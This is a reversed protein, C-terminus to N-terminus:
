CSLHRRELLPIVADSCSRRSLEKGGREFSREPELHSEVSLIVEIAKQARAKGLVKESLALFKKGLIEEDAPNEMSGPPSALEAKLVSGNQLQVELKIGYAEQGPASLSPDSRM